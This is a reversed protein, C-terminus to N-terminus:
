RIGGCLHNSLQRPAPLSWHLKGERKLSRINGLLFTFLESSLLAGMKKGFIAKGHCGSTKYIADLGAFDAVFLRSLIASTYMDFPGM